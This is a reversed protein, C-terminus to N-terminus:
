SELFQGVRRHADARTLSPRLRETTVRFFEGLVQTSLVGRGLQLVDDLLRIAQRQKDHEAADAAYVLISSDILAHATM